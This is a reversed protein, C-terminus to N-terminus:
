MTQLIDGIAQLRKSICYQVDEAYVQMCRLKKVLGTRAHSVPHWLLDLMAVVQTSPIDSKKAPHRVTSSHSQNAHSLAGKNPLM